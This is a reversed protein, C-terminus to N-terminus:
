CSKGNSKLWTVFDWLYYPWILTIVVLKFFIGFDSYGDKRLAHYGEANECVITWLVIAACFFGIWLYAALM